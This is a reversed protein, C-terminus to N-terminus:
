QALTRALELLGMDLPKRRGAVDALPTAVIRGDISGMLVGGHGAALQAVAAAGLRTASRM